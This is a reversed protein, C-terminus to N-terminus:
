TQIVRIKLETVLQHHISYERSLQKTFFYREYVSSVIVLQLASSKMSKM